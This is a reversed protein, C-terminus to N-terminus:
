NALSERGLQESEYRTGTLKILWVSADITRSFYVTQGNPISPMFSTITEWDEGKKNKVKMVANFYEGDPTTMVELATMRQDTGIEILASRGLAALLRPQHIPDKSQLTQEIQSDITVAHELQYIDAKIAFVPKATATSHFLFMANFLLLLLVSQTNM